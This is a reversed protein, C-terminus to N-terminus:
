DKLLKSTQKIEERESFHCHNSIFCDFSPHFLNKNEIVNNSKEYCRFCLRSSFTSLHHINSRHNM